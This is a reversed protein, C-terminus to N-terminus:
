ASLAAAGRKRNCELCTLRVNDHFHGVTNDLRDVSFHQTDKSEWAWLLEINCADCRNGQAERLALIHDVKLSFRLGKAQEQRKYGALKKIITKRLLSEDPETLPGGESGEEQPCVVRELQSLYEVRSLALLALNSWQLNDAIIWVRKPTHSPSVKAQTSQSPM